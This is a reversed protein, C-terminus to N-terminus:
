AAQLEDHTIHKFEVNLKSIDWDPLDIQRAALESELQMETEFDGLFQVQVNLSTHNEDHLDIKEFKVDAYRIRKETLLSLAIGIETKLQAESILIQQLWECIRQTMALLETLDSHMHMRDLVMQNASSPNGSTLSYGVAKALYDRNNTAVDLARRSYCSALELNNIKKFNFACNLLDTEDPNLRDVTAVHTAVAEIDWNLAAVGARVLTAAVLDSSALKDAARSLQTTEFITVDRDLAFLEELRSFLSNAITQPQAATMAELKCEVWWGM